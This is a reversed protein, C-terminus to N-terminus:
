LLFEKKSIKGDREGASDADSIMKDIDSQEATGQLLDSLEHSDIFGSADHDLKDFAASLKDENLHVSNALTASIFESYSILGTHDSDIKAFLDAISQPDMRANKVMAARFESLTLTGSGDTDFAKFQDRLVKIESPSMSFAVVQM